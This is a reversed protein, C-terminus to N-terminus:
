AQHCKDGKFNEIGTLDYIEDWAAECDICDCARMATNASIPEFVDGIVNESGCGPCKTGDYM